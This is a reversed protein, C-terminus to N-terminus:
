SCTKGGQQGWVGLQVSRRFSLPALTAAWRPLSGSCYERRHYTSRSEGQQGFARGALGTKVSWGPGGASIVVQPGAGVTHSLPSPAFTRAQLSSDRKGNSFKM